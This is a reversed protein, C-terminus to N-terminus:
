VKDLGLVTQLLVNVGNVIDPTTSFEKPSHSVGGISPIFIMGAPAISAIHQSDHGAGSQMFKTSLGMKGATADIAKQIRPDTLAPEIGNPQRDFSIKTGTEKAILAARKEIQVFLQEIKEASLDRIELGMMVQGPIV